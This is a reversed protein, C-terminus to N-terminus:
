RVTYLLRTYITYGQLMLLSNTWGNHSRRSLPAGTLERWCNLKLHGGLMFKWFCFCTVVLCTFKWFYFLANRNVPTWTDEIGTFFSDMRDSLMKRKQHIKNTISHFLPTRAYIWTWAPLRPLLFYLISLPADVSPSSGSFCCRLFDKLREKKLFYMYTPMSWMRGSSFGTRPPLWPGLLARAPCAPPSRGPILPLLLVACSHEWGQSFKPWGSFPQGTLCVVPCLQQSVPDSWFQNIWVFTIFMICNWVFLCILHLINRMQTAIINVTRRLLHKMFDFFVYQMYKSTHYCRVPFFIRKPFTINQRWLKIKLGRQGARYGEGCAPLGGVGQKGDFSKFVRM